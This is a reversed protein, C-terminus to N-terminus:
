KGDKKKLLGELGKEILKTPDVQKLINKAFLELDASTKPDDLSGRTRFPVMSAADLVPVQGVLGGLGTNAKFLGAAQDTLSGLPVWTVVDVKRAALDVSGETEISFEGLPLRYRPYTAVGNTLTVTLPDLRQGISGTTKIKALDLLQGFLSSTAFRAEGPDIRVVGNLKSMDKSLPIRLNEGVIMGPRDTRSKQITGIAPLGKVFRGALADTLELISVNLPQSMTLVSDDISGQASLTARDSSANLKLTGGSQAPTGPTAPAPKLPVKQADLDLAIMPGLAEVLVGDQGALVDVLATPLAPIKGAATVTAHAPDLAGQPSVLNEVVGSLGVNTAASSDGAQASAVNLRFALAPSAAGDQTNLTLTTNTLVAPRKDSSAAEVRPIDVGLAAALKPGGDVRPLVLRDIAVGVEVPSTVSFAPPKPQQGPPTPATLKQNIWEPALTFRWKSSKTVEFAQPSVRLAIPGDAKLKPATAVLEATTTQTAQDTTAKVTVKASDGLISTLLADQGLAREAAGTAIDTLELNLALPGAPAGASFDGTVTGVLNTVREHNALVVGHMSGSVPAKFATGGSTMFAAVPVDSEISLGDVGVSALSRMSSKEDFMAALGDVAAKGPITVTAHLPKAKDWQPTLGQMPVTFPALGVQAETAAALRLKGAFEPKSARLLADLLGPTVAINAFNETGKLETPSLRFRNVTSSKGGSIRAVLEIVAPDDTRKIGLDLGVKDGFVERTMAVYDLVTTAPAGAVQAPQALGAASAPLDIVQLRGAPRMSKVDTNVVPAGDSGTTWVDTVGLNGVITFAAGSQAGKGSLDLTSEKGPALTFRLQVDSLDVPAADTGARFIRLGAATAAVTGSAKDLRLVSKSTGAAVERPISVARLLLTVDGPGNSPPEVRLGTEPKVFMAILGGGRKMTLTFDSTRTAIQTPSITFGGSATLHMASANLDIDTASARAAAKVELDLTPGMDRPLDVGLAEVFPQAIATSIKQVQALGTVLPTTKAIAGKDDLLGAVTLDVNVDGAPHNALTASTRGTIRVGAGLDQTEVVATLPAVRMVQIPEGASLRTQGVVEALAVQVKAATSRLDLSQGAQPLKLRLNDITLTADPLADLRTAAGARTAAGLAPVLDGIAAGSLRITVPSADTLMGDTVRIDGAAQARETRAQLRLTADQFSGSADVNATLTPGLAKALPVPRGQEDKVVAPLMADLMAMPLADISGKAALTAKAPTITGGSAAWNTARLDLSIAGPAAGPQDAHATVKAELPKNVDILADIKADKLSVTQTGGAAAYDTFTANLDTVVLKVKLGAPLAAPKTSAGGGAGSGGAPGAPQSKLLSQVNTSGDKDRTITAEAGSITVTGLDLSGKVLGLLGTTTEISAKAVVQGSEDKWTVPGVRQPGGWSLDARDVVVSGKVFNGAQKAVIGPALGSAIRPAFIIAILLGALLFGVGGLIIRGKKSKRPAGPSQAATQQPEAGNLVNDAM